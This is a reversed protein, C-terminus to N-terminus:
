NKLGDLKIRRYADFEFQLDGISDPLEAPWNLILPNENFYPMANNLFAVKEPDMTVKHMKLESIEFTGTQPNVAIKCKFSEMRYEGFADTHTYWLELSGDRKPKIESVYISYPYSVTLELVTRCIGYQASAKFPKFLFWLAYAFFALFSYLAIRKITKKRAAKKQVKLKDALTERPKEDEVVTQKAIEAKESDEM